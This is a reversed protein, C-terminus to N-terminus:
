RASRILRLVLLNLFKPNLKWAHFFVRSLHPMEPLGAILDLTTGAEIPCDHASFELAHVFMRRALAHAMAGDYQHTEKAHKAISLCAAIVSEVYDKRFVRTGIRAFEHQRWCGFIEPCFLRSRAHLKARVQFEWDQSGTLQENWWGVRDLFDRRYIAGMTHWHYGVLDRGSKGYPSGVVKGPISKLGADVQQVRGFAFDCRRAELGEIAGQINQPWLVDDSDMFMVYKGRAHKLGTNRCAPAGQNQAACFMRLEVGAQHLKLALTEVAERTRDGSCDDVVILEATKGFESCSWLCEQILSERNFVPIIISLLM